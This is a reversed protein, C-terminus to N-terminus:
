LFLVHEFTPVSWLDQDKTSVLHIAPEPSPFSRKYNCCSLCTHGSHQRKATYNEKELLNAPNKEGIDLAIWHDSELGEAVVHGDKGIGRLM